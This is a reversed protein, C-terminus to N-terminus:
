LSYVYDVIYITFKVVLIKKMDLIDYKQTLSPFNKSKKISFFDKTSRTEEGGGQVADIKLCGKRDDEEKGCESVSFLHHQLDAELM